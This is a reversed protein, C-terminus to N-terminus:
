RMTPPLINVYHWCGPLPFRHHSFVHKKKRANNLLACFIPVSTYFFLFLSPSASNTINQPWHSGSSDIPLPWVSCVATPENNILPSLSVGCRGQETNERSSRCPQSVLSRSSHYIALLILHPALLRRCFSKFGVQHGHLLFSIMKSHKDQQLIQMLSEDQRKKWQRKGGEEGKEWEEEERESEGTVERGGNNDHWGGQLCHQWPYQAAPCILQHRTNSLRTCLDTEQVQAGRLGSRRLYTQNNYKDYLDPRKFKFM